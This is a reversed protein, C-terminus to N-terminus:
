SLPASAEDNRWRRLGALRPRGPVRVEPLSGARIALHRFRGAAEAVWFRPGLRHVILAQPSRVWRVMEASVDGAHLGWVWTTRSWHAWNVRHAHQRQGMVAIAAARRQATEDLDTIQMRDPRLAPGVGIRLLGAPLPEVFFRWGSLTVETPM